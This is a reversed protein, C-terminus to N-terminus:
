VAITSANSAKEIPELVGRNGNPRVINTQPAFNSRVNAVDRLYITSNGVQKVPPDKLEAVMRPGSNTLIDYEFENIRATREPLVVYQNLVANLIDQPSLGKAQLLDPNFDITLQPQQGGYPFPSVAGPVAVLQPRQLNQGLDNLQQEALGKWTM